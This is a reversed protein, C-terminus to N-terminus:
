IKKGKEGFDLKAEVGEGGRTSKYKKRGLRTFEIGGEPTKL